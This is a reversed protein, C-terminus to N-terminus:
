SSLKGSEGQTEEMIICPNQSYLPYKTDFSSSSCNLLNIFAIIKSTKSDFHHGSKGQRYSIIYVFVIDNIYIQILPSIRIHISYNM